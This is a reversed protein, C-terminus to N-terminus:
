SISVTQLPFLAIFEDDCGSLMEQLNYGFIHTLTNETIMSQNKYMPVFSIRYYKIFKSSIDNTNEYENRETDYILKCYINHKSLINIIEITVNSYDYIESFLIQEINNICNHLNEDEIGEHESYAQAFLYIYKIIDIIPRNYKHDLLYDGYIYNDYVYSKKFNKKYYVYWYEKSNDSFDYYGYNKSFIHTNTQYTYANFLKIYDDVTYDNIHNSKCLYLYNYFNLVLISGLISHSYKWREMLKSFIDIIYKINKELFPEVPKMVSIIEDYINSLKNIDDINIDYIDINNIDYRNLINFLQNWIEHTQFIKLIDKIINYESDGIYLLNINLDIYNGNIDENLNQIINVIYPLKEVLDISTKDVKYNQLDYVLRKLHELSVNENSVDIQSYTRFHYINSNNNPQNKLYQFLTDIHKTKFSFKPCIPHIYLHRSEDKINVNDNQEYFTSISKKIVKYNENNEYKKKNENCSLSLDLKIFEKFSNVIGVIGPSNFTYVGKINQFDKYFTAYFLQCLAGGLSHGTVALYDNYALYNDNICYQIFKIIDAYVEIPLKNFIWGYNAKMSDNFIDDTGRFSIIKDAVDKLEESYEESKIKEFLTASFGTKNNSIHYLVKYKKFFSVAFSSYKFLRATDVIEDEDYQEALENIEQNLIKKQEDSAFNYSVVFHYYDEFFNNYIYDFFEEFKDRNFYRSLVNASKLDFVNVMDQIDFYAYSAMALESYQKFCNLSNSM